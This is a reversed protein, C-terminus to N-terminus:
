MATLVAHEFEKLGDRLSVKIGETVDMVLVQKGFVVFSESEDFLREGEEAIAKQAKRFAPVSAADKLFVKYVLAYQPMSSGGFYARLDFKSSVIGVNVQMGRVENSANKELASRVIPTLKGYLAEGERDNDATSVFWMAVVGNGDGVREGGQKSLATQIPVEKEVAMMSISTELDAFFLADPKM